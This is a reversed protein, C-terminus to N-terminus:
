GAKRLSIKESGKIEKIALLLSSVTLGIYGLSLGSLFVGEILREGTLFALAVTWLWFAFGYGGVAGAVAVAVAGAGTRFRFSGAGILIGGMVAAAVAFAPNKGAALGGYFFGLLAGSATASLANALIGFRRPMLITLGTGAGALSLSVLLAVIYSGKQGGVPEGLAPFVTRAVASGMLLTVGVAVAVLVAVRRFIIGTPVQEFNTKM